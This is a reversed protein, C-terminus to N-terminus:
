RFNWRRSVTMAIDGCRLNRRGQQQHQQFRRKLQALEQINLKVTSISNLIGTQDTNEVPFTPSAVDRTLLEPDTTDEMFDAAMLDPTVVQITFRAPGPM